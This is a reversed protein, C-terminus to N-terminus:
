QSNGRTQVYKWQLLQQNTTWSLILNHYFTGFSYKNDPALNSQSWVNIALVLRAMAYKDSMIKVVQQKWGKPAVAILERNHLARNDM